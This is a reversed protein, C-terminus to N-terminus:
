SLSNYDAQLRGSMTGSPLLCFTGIFCFSQLKTLKHLVCDANLSPTVLCFHISLFALISETCLNHFILVPNWLSEQFECLELGSFIWSPIKDSDFEHPPPSPSQNLGWCEPWAETHQLGAWSQQPVLLKSCYPFISVAKESSRNAPLTIAESPHSSLIWPLSLLSLSFCHPPPLPSLSIPSCILQPVCNWLHLRDAACSELLVSTWM